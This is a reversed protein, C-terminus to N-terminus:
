PKIGCHYLLVSKVYMQMRGCHHGPLGTDREGSSGEHDEAMLRLVVSLGVGGICDVIDLLQHLSFRNWSVGRCLTGYQAEWCSQILQGTSTQCTSSYFPTFEGLLERTSLAYYGRAHDRRHTIEGTRSRAERCGARRM